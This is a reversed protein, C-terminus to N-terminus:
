LANKVSAADRIQIVNTNCYDSDTPRRINDDSRTKNRGRLAKLADQSVGCTDGLNLERVDTMGHLHSLSCDDVRSQIDLRDIPIAQKLSIGLAADLVADEPLWIRVKRQEIDFWMHDAPVTWWPDKNTWEVDPQYRVLGGASVISDVAQGRRRARELPWGLFLCAATLGVLLTRLSFQLRHHM